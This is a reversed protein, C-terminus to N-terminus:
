CFLSSSNWNINSNLEYFNYLLSHNNKKINYFEDKIKLLDETQNKLYSEFKESAEHSLEEYSSLDYKRYQFLIMKKIDYSVDQSNKNILSELGLTELFKKAKLSHLEILLYYMYSKHFNSYISDKYVWEDFSPLEATAAAIVKTKSISNYNEIKEIIEKELKELDISM